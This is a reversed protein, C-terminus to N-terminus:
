AAERELLKALLGADRAADVCDRKLAATLADKLWYSTWPAALIEAISPLAATKGAGTQNKDNAKVDIKYKQSGAM